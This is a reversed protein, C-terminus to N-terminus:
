WAVPTNLDKSIVKRILRNDDELLVLRQNHNFEIRDFRTELHDIRTNIGEFGQMMLSMLNKQFTALTEVFDKKTVFSAELNKHFGSLAEM